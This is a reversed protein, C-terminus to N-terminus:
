DKNEQESLLYIWLLLRSSHFYEGAMHSHLGGNRIEEAAISPRRSTFLFVSIFCNHKLGIKEEYFCISMMTRSVKIQEDVM